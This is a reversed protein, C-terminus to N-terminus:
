VRQYHVSVGSPRPFVGSEIIAMELPSLDWSYCITMNMPGGGFASSDGWTGFNFPQVPLEPSEEESFGFYNSMTGESVFIRGKDRFLIMLLRNIDAISGNSINAAAKTFIVKRYDNDSLVYSDAPIDKGYFIGNNFPRATDSGDDAELFGFYQPLNVKFVRSVGVIRGWVDLGWGTATSPNWVHNYFTDILAYPDIAANFQEIISLLIPSNAYQALITARIDKM